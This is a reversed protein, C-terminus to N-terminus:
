AEHSFIFGIVRASYPLTSIVSAYDNALANKGKVVRIVEANSTITTSAYIKAFIEGRPCNAGLEPLGWLGDFINTSTAGAHNPAELWDSSGAILWWDGICHVSVDTCGLVLAGQAVREAILAPHPGISGFYMEHQQLLMDEVNHAVVKDKM